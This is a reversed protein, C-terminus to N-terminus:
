ERVVWFLCFCFLNPHIFYSPNFLKTKTSWFDNLILLFFSFFFPACVFLQVVTCSPSSLIWTPQQRNECWLFVVFFCGFESSIARKQFNTTLKNDIFTTIQLHFFFSFLFSFFFPACVCTRVVTCSSSRLIWTPQQRNECLGLVFMVLFLLRTTSAVRNFQNHKCPKM